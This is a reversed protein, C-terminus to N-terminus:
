LDLWIKEGGKIKRLFLPMMLIIKPVNSLTYLIFILLSMGPFKPTLIISLNKVVPFLLYSLSGVGVALLFSIILVKLKTEFLFIPKLGMARLKENVTGDSENIKKLNNYIMDILYRKIVFRYFEIQTGQNYPISYQTFLQELLDPGNINIKQLEPTRKRTLAQLYEPESIKFYNLIYELNNM